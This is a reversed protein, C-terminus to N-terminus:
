VNPVLSHLPSPPGQHIRVFPRSALNPSLHLQFWPSTSNNKSLSLNTHLLALSNLKYIYELWLNLYFEERKLGPVETGTNLLDMMLRAEDIAFTNKKTGKPQLWHFYHQRFSHFRWVQEHNDDLDKADILLQQVRRELQYDDYDDDAEDNNDYGLDQLHKKIRIDAKSRIVLLPIQNQIARLEPHHLCRYSHVYM